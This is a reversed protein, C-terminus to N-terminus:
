KETYRGSVRILRNFIIVSISLLLLLGLTGMLKFGIKSVDDFWIMYIGISIGAILSILSILYCSKDIKNFEIMFSGFNIHTIRKDYKLTVLFLLLIFLVILYILAIM